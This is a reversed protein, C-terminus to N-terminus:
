VRKRLRQATRHSRLQSYGHVGRRGDLVRKLTADIEGMREQVAATLAEIGAKLAGLDEPSAKAAFTNVQQVLLECERVDIDDGRELRERTDALAEILEARTM